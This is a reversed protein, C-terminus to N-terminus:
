LALKVSACFATFVRMGLAQVVNRGEDDTPYQRLLDALDMAREIAVLHLTLRPNAAVRAEARSRLAEEHAQLTRLNEPLAM